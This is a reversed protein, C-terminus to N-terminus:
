KSIISSYTYRYAACIRFYPLYMFTTPGNGYWALFQHIPYELCLKLSYALQSLSVLWTGNDYNAQFNKLEILIELNKLTLFFYYILKPIPVMFNAKVASGFTYYAFGAVTNYFIFVSVLAVGSSRMFNRVTRPRLRGFIAVSAM